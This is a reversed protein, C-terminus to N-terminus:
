LNVEMSIERTIDVRLNEIVALNVQLTKSTLFASSVELSTQIGTILEVVDGSSM